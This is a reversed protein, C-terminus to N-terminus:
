KVKVEHNYNITVRRKTGDPYLVWVWKLIGGYVHGEGIKSTTLFIPFEVRDFELGARLHEEKIIRYYGIALEKITSDDVLHKKIEM